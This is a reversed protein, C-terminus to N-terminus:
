GLVDLGIKRGAKILAADCSALQRRRRAALELYAADYVSLDHEISLQRTRGWAQMDTEPDVIIQLRDLRQLCRTAYGMDCRRRRVANRLVNVIELRWLSPVLAGETAVRRLVTQPTESRENSFLWAVTMSADVVLSM